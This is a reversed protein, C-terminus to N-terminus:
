KALIENVIRKFDKKCIRGYIEVLELKCAQVRDEKKRRMYERM